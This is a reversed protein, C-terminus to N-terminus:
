RTTMPRASPVWRHHSTPTASTRVSRGLPSSSLSLRDECCHTPPTVTLSSAATTAYARASRTGCRRYSRARERRDRSREHRAPWTSTWRRPRPEGAWRRAHDATSHTPSRPSTRPAHAPRPRHREPLVPTAARQHERQHRAAVPEASRLFLGAPGHRDATAAHQAMEAGQDWTLSRRLQEPLTTIAEAIADRVQEAGHGSVPPGNKVPPQQPREPPPLHLLM